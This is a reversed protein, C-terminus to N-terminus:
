DEFPINVNKTNDLWLIFRPSPEKDRCSVNRWIWASFTLSAMMCPALDRGGCNSDMTATKSKLIKICAGELYLRLLLSTWMVSLGEIKMTELDRGSSDITTILRVAKGKTPRSAGPETLVKHRLRVHWYRADHPYITKNAGISLPYWSWMETTCSLIRTLWQNQEARDNM